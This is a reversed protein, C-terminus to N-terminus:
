FVFSFIQMESTACPRLPFFFNCQITADALLCLSFYNWLVPPSIGEVQTMLTLCCSDVHKWHCDITLIVRPCCVSHTENNKWHGVKKSQKQSDAMKRDDLDGEWPKTLAVTEAVRWHSLWVMETRCAIGLLCVLNWLLPSSVANATFWRSILFHSHWFFFHQCAGCARAHPSM